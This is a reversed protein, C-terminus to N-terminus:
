NKGNKLELMLTVTHKLANLTLKLPLEEDLIRSGIVTGLLDAGARYFVVIKSIQTDTLNFDKFERLVQERNM